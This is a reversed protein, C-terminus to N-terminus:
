GRRLLATYLDAPSLPASAIAALAVALGGVVTATVASGLLLAILSASFSLGALWRVLMRSKRARKEAKLKEEWGPEREGMFQMQV